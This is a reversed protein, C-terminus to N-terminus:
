RTYDKIAEQLADIEHNSLGLEVMRDYISTLGELIHLRRLEAAEADALRKKEAAEREQAWRLKDAANKKERAIKDAVAKARENEVTRFNPLMDKTLLTPIAELIADKSAWRRSGSGGYLGPEAHHPEVPQQMGCVDAFDPSHPYGVERLNWLSWYGGWGNPFVVWGRHEGGVWLEYKSRVCFKTKDWSAREPEVKKLEVTVDAM